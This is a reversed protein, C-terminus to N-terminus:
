LEDFIHIFSRELGHNLDDWFIMFKDALLNYKKLMKFEYLPADPIHLADSFIINFKRGQLKSWCSEDYIDGALYYIKIIIASINM